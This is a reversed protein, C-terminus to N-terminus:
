VRDSNKCTATGQTPNVLKGSSALTRSAGSPKLVYPESLVIKAAGVKRRTRQM